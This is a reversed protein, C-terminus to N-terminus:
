YVIKGEVKKKLNGLGDNEYQADKMKKAQNLAASAVAATALGKGMGKVGNAVGEGLKNYYGSDVDKKFGKAASGLIFFCYKLVYYLLTYPLLITWKLITWIIKFAKM